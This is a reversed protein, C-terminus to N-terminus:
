SWAQLELINGEPDSVYCWTVEDGHATRLSVVQGVAKGGAQLVKDRADDVSPVQFALHGFGLRNAATAPRDALAAYTYIELTPGNPGCGPLRLHIGELAAATVGTGAELAPGSYSREPPVPVCGLVDVYFNALSRWDRAVLNTHVYCAGQILPKGAKDRRM